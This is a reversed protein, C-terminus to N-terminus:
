RDNARRVALGVAIATSPAVENIYDPDFDRPNYTVNNFPNLFEVGAEFREGLLERLGPVISSGGPLKRGEISSSHCIKQSSHM